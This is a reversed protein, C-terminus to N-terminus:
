ASPGNGVSAHCPPPDPTEQPRLDKTVGRRKSSPRADRAMEGIYGLQLRDRAGAGGIACFTAERWTLGTKEPWVRCCADAGTGAM